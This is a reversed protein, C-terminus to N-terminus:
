NVVKRIIFYVLSHKFRKAQPSHRKHHIKCKKNMSKKKCLKKISTKMRKYDAVSLYNGVYKNQTGTQKMKWRTRRLYDHYEELTQM